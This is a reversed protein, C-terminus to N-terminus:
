KKEGKLRARDLCLSVLVMLAFEKLNPLRRNTFGAILLSYTVFIFLCELIEYIIVKNRFSEGSRIKVLAKDYTKSILFSIIIVALLNFVLIHNDFFDRIQNLFGM